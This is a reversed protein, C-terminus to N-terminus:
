IYCCAVLLCVLQCLMWSGSLDMGRKELWDPLQLRKGEKPVLHWEFAGEPKVQISLQVKPHLCHLLVVLLGRKGWELPADPEKLHKPKEKILGSMWECVPPM